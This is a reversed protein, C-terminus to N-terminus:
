PDNTSSDKGGSLKQDSGAPQFRVRDNEQDDFSLKKSVYPAEIYLLSFVWDM